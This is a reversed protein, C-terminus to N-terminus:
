FYKSNYPTTVLESPFNCSPGSLSIFAVKHSISDPNVTATESSSELLKFKINLIAESLSQGQMTKMFMQINPFNLQVDNENLSYGQQHETMLKLYTDLKILVDALHPSASFPVTTSDNAAFSGGLQRKLLQYFKIEYKKSLILNLTAFVNALFHKDQIYLFEPANDIEYQLIKQTLNKIVILDLAYLSNLSTSLHANQTADTELLEDSESLNEELDADLTLRSLDEVLKFAQYSNLQSKNAHLEQSWKLLQSDVLRSSSCGSVDVDNLWM